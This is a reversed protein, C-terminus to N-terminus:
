REVVGLMDVSGRVRRYRWRVESDACHRRVKVVVAVGAAFRTPAAEGRIARALSSERLSTTLVM